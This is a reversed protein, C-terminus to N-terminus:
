KFTVCGSNPPPASWMFFLESKPQSNTESITNICEENFKTQNDSFLQFHGVNQPADYQNNTSEVSITFRQFHRIKNYDRPAM